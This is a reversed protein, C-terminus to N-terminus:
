ADNVKRVEDLLERINSYLDEQATHNLMAAVEDMVLVDSITGPKDVNDLDWTTNLDKKAVINDEEDLFCLNLNVKKM